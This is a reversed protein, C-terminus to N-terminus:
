LPLHYNTCNFYAAYFNMIKELYNILKKMKTHRREQNRLKNYRVPPFGAHWILFFHLWNKLPPPFM